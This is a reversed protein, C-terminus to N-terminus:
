VEYDVAAIQECIVKAKEVVPLHDPHKAYVGLAALDAFTSVLALDFSRPSHIVDAGAELSQIEAIKGPLARLISLLDERETAPTEAKFKFFVIHRIM